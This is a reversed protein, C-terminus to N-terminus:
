PPRQPIIQLGDGFIREARWRGPPPSKIVYRNEDSGEELYMIARKCQQSEDLYLLHVKTQMTKLKKLSETLRDVNDIDPTLRNRRLDYVRRTLENVSDVLSRQGRKPRSTKARPVGASCKRNRRRITSVIIVLVVIAMVLNISDAFM